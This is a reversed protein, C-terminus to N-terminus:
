GNTRQRLATPSCGVWNKFARRFNAPDEYGLEAAIADISLTTNAVYDRARTEMEQNLLQRYSTGEEKLRRSLSRESLCLHRSTRELSPLPLRQSCLLRSVHRSYSTDSPASRLIALQEACQQLSRRWLIADYYPSVRQTIEHPVTIATKKSEFEIPSNLLKRYQDAYTPPSHSFRYRGDVFPEGLIEELLNQCLLAFVESYITNYGDDRYHQISMELHNPRATLSTSSLGSHLQGYTELIQLADLVSPASLAAIGLEGFGALRTHSGVMLGFAPNPCIRIANALFGKFEEINMLAVREIEGASLTLGEYLTSLDLGARMLERHVIRCYFTTIQMQWIHCIQRFIVHIQRGFSERSKSDAPLM